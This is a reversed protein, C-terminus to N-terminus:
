RDREHDRHRHGPRAVLRDARRHQQREHQAPGPQQDDDVPLATDPRRRGTTCAADACSPRAARRRRGGVRAGPQARMSSSCACPSMVSSSRVCRRAAIRSASQDGISRTPEAGSDTSACRTEPSSRRANTPTSAPSPRRRDSGRTRGTARSTRTTARGSSANSASRRATRSASPTPSIRSTCTASSTNARCARHHPLRQDADLRRYNNDIQEKFYPM